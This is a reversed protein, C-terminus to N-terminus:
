APRAGTMAGRLGALRNRLPASSPLFHGRSYQLLAISATHYGTDGDCLRERPWPGPPGRCAVGVPQRYRNPLHRSQAAVQFATRLGYKAVTAPHAQSRESSARGVSGFGQAQVTPPSPLLRSPCRRVARLGVKITLARPLAVALATASLSEGQSRKM